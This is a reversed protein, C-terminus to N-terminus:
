IGIGLGIISNKNVMCFDFAKQFSRMKKLKNNIL